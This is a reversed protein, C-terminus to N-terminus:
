PRRSSATGPPPPGCRVRHCRHDLRPRVCALDGLHCLRRRGRTHPRVRGPCRSGRRVIGLTLGLRRPVGAGDATPACESGVQFARGGRTATGFLFIMGTLAPLVALGPQGARLLLITSGALVLLDGAHGRLPLQLLPRPLHSGGRREHPLSRHGVDHRDRCRWHRGRDGWCSRPPPRASSGYRWPSGTSTGCASNSVSAPGGSGVPSRLWDLLTRMAAAGIGGGPRDRRMHAPSVGRSTSRWATSRGRPREVWPVRAGGSRRAARGRGPMGPGFPPRRADALLPHCGGPGPGLGPRRGYRGM